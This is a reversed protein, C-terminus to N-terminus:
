MSASRRAWTEAAILWHCMPRLKYKSCRLLGHSDYMVHTGILIVEQGHDWKELLGTYVPLCSHSQWMVVHWASNLWSNPLGQKQKKFSAMFSKSSTMWSAASFSNTDNKSWFVGCLFHGKSTWASASTCGLLSLISYIKHFQYSSTVSQVGGVCKGNWTVFTSVTDIRNKRIQPGRLYHVSWSRSKPRSCPCGMKAPPVTGGFSDFMQYIMPDESQRNCSTHSFCFLANVLCQGLELFVIFFWSESPHWTSCPPVTQLLAFHNGPKFDSKSIYLKIIGWEAHIGLPIPNMAKGQRSCVNPPPSVYTTYQVSKKWHPCKISM